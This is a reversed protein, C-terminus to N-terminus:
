HQHRRLATACCECQLSPDVSPHSGRGSRCTVPCLGPGSGASGVGGAGAADHRPRGSLQVANCRVVAPTQIADGDTRRGGGCAGGRGRAPCLKTYQISVPHILIFVVTLSNQDNILRRRYKSDLFDYWVNICSKSRLESRYNKFSNFKSEDSTM